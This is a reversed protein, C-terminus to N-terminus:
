FLCKWKDTWRNSMKFLNCNERFIELNFKISDKMKLISQTEIDELLPFQIEIKTLISILKKDKKNPM